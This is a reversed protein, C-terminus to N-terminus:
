RKTTIQKYCVGSCEMEGMVANNPRTKCRSETKTKEGKPEHSLMGKNLLIRCTAKPLTEALLPNQNEAKRGIGCSKGGGGGGGGNWGAM